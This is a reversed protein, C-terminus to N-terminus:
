SFAIQIIHVAWVVGLVALSLTGSQRMWRSGSARFHECVIGMTAAWMQILLSSAVFIGAPNASMAAHADGRALAFLSTMIGCGPCPLGLATRMLCEHPVRALLAPPCLLFFLIVVGSSAALNLWIRRAPDACFPRLLGAPIIAIEMERARGHFCLM